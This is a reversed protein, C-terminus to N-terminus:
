PPAGISKEIVPHAPCATRKRHMVLWLRFLEKTTHVIKRLTMTSKGTARREYPASIRQVRFGAAVSKLILETSVTSVGRTEAAIAQLVSRRFFQAFNHDWFPSRFLVKVLLINCWSILKRVPAYAQRDTREVVVVDAGERIRRLIEPTSEPAFSLDIGNHTVIEGRSEGFGRLVSAGQGLNRENYLVRVRRDRDAAQQAVALTNDTSGDDIVILEFDACCAELVPVYRAIAADVAKGENYAPLIVSVEVLSADDTM